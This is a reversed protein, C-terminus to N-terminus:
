VYVKNPTKASLVHPYKVLETTNEPCPFIGAVLLIDARKISWNDVGFQIVPKKNWRMKNKSVGGETCFLDFRSQVTYYAPMNQM